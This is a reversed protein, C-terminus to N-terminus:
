DFWWGGTVGESAAASIAECRRADFLRRFKPRTERELSFRKIMGPVAALQEFPGEGLCWCDGDDDPCAEMAALALSRM